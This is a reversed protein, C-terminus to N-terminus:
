AQCASWRKVPTPGGGLELSVTRIVYGDADGRLMHPKGCMVQSYKEAAKAQILALIWDCSAASNAVSPAVLSMNFRAHCLQSAEDDVAMKWNVNLGAAGDFFAGGTQRDAGSPFSSTAGFVRPYAGVGLGGSVYCNKHAVISLDEKWLEITTHARDETAFSALKIILGARIPQKGAYGAVIQAVESAISYDRASM